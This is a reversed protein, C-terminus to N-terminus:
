HYSKKKNVPLGELGPVAYTCIVTRRQLGLLRWDDNLSLMNRLLMSVSLKGSVRGTTDQM